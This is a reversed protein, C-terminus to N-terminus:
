YYGFSFHTKKKNARRNSNAKKTGFETQIYANKEGTKQLESFTGIVLWRDQISIVIPTKRGNAQFPSLAFSPGPISTGYFRGHKVRVRIISVSRAFLPGSERRRDLATVRTTEDPGSSQARNPGRRNGDLAALTKTSHGCFVLFVGVLLM